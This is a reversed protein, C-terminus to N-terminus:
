IIREREKKEEQIYALKIKLFSYNLRTAILKKCEHPNMIKSNQEKFIHMDLEVYVIVLNLQMIPDNLIKMCFSCAWDSKRKLM